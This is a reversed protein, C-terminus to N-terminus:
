EQNMKRMYEFLAVLYEQATPLFSGKRLIFSFNSWQPLCMGTKFNSKMGAALYEVTFDVEPCMCITMDYKKGLFLQKVAEGKPFGYWKLQSKAIFFVGKEECLQSFEERALKNKFAKGHEVVVIVSELQLSSFFDMVEGLQLVEEPTDIRWILAVSGLEEVKPFVQIHSGALAKIRKRRRINKLFAVM